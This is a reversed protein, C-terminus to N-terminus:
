TLGGGIKALQQDCDYIFQNVALVSMGHGLKVYEAHAEVANERAERIAAIRKEKTM